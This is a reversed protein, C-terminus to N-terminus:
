GNPSVSGRLGAAINLNIDIIASLKDPSPDAMIEFIRRDIFISLSLIDERLRQPLPNDPKVLEAQLISWVRQNYKLAARLGARRGETHWQDKWKKLSFAARSLISAEVERGSQAALYMKRYANLAREHSNIMM